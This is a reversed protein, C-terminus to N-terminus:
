AEVLKLRLTKIEFARMKLVVETGDDVEELEADNVVDELLNVWHAQVLKM